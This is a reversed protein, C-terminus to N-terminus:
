CPTARSDNVRQDTQQFKAAVCCPMQMDTVPARLSILADGGVSLLHKSLVPRQQAKVIRVADPPLACEEHAERLATAAADADGNELKGGPLCVEGPACPWCQHAASPLITCSPM